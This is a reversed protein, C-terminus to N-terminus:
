PLLCAPIFKVTQAVFLCAIVANLRDRLRGFDLRVSTYTRSNRDLHDCTDSCRTNLLHTMVICRNAKRVGGSRVVKRFTNLISESKKAPHM